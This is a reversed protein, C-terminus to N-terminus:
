HQSHVLLSIRLAGSACVGRESCSEELQVMVQGESCVCFSCIQECKDSSFRLRVCAIENTPVIRRHTEGRIVYLESACHWCGAAGEELM